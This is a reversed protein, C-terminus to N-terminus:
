VAPGRGPRHIDPLIHCESHGHKEKIQLWRSPGPRSQRPLDFRQRSNFRRDPQTDGLALFQRDFALARGHVQRSCPLFESLGLASDGSLAPRQCRGKSQRRALSDILPGLPAPAARDAAPERVLHLRSDIDWGVILVSREARQLVEHLHQFYCAGDILFALRSAGAIRWCNRGAQLIAERSM